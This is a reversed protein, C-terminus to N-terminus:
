WYLIGIKSINKIWWTFRSSSSYQLSFVASCVPTQVIFAQYNTFNAVPLTATPFDSSFFATLYLNGPKKDFLIKSSGLEIRLNTVSLSPCPVSHPWISFQAYQLYYLGIKWVPVELSKQTLPCLLFWHWPISPPIGHAYKERIHGM